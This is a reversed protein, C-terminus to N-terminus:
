RAPARRWIADDFGETVTTDRVTITLRRKGREHVYRMRWLADAVRERWIAEVVRGEEIREMRQLGQPTYHLRWVRGSREGAVGPPRVGIDARVTDGDLRVITDPAPPVVRRGLTGWLLPVPPLFRRVLDIGPVHLSDGDLIAYGGALGNALFFDLRAREPPQVRVAGDGNAEFTEDEYRWAFRILQPSAAGGAAPLVVARSPTGALARVAPACGETLIGAAVLVLARGLRAARWRGWRDRRRRHPRDTATAGIV